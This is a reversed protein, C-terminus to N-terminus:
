RSRADRSRSPITRLEGARRRPRADVRARRAGGSAGRRRLHDGQLRLEGTPAGGAAGARRDPVDYGRSGSGGIGRPPLGGPRRRAGHDRRTARRHRMSAPSSASARRTWASPSSPTTCSRAWATSAAASQRRTRSWRSRAGCGSVSGWRRRSSRDRDGGIRGGSSTSSSAAELEDAAPAAMSLRAAILARAGTDRAPGRDEEGDGRVSRTSRGAHTMEDALVSPLSKKGRAADNGVAKGTRAPRGVRGTRRGGGPVRHRSEVGALRLRKSMANAPAASCARGARALRRHLAGTKGATM